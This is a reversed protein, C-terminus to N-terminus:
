LLVSMEVFCHQLQKMMSRIINTCSNTKQVCFNNMFIKISWIEFVLALEFFSLGYKPEAVEIYGLILRVNLALIKKNVLTILLNCSILKTTVDPKGTIRYALM